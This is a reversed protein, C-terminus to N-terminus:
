EDRLAYIYTLVRNFKFYETLVTVIEQENSFALGAIFIQGNKAARLARELDDQKQKEEETIIDNKSTSSPSKSNDPSNDTM